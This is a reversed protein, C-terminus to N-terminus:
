PLSVLQFCDSLSKILHCAKSESKSNGGYMPFTSWIHLSSSGTYLSSLYCIHFFVLGLFLGFDLNRGHYLRGTSDQVIISTCFTFVEYFINYLTVESVPLGSVLSIGAIEERYPSPLTSSLQFVTTILTHLSISSHLSHILSPYHRYKIRFNSYYWTIYHHSISNKCSYWINKGIM